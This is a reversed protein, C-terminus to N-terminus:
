HSALRMVWQVRSLYEALPEYENQSVEEAEMIKLEIYDVSEMDIYRETLKMLIDDDYQKITDM